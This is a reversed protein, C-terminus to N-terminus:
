VTIIGYSSCNFKSFKSRATKDSTVTAIKLMSEFIKNGYYADHLKHM